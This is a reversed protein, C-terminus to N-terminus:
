LLSFRKKHKRFFIFMQRYVKRFTLEEYQKFFWSALACYLFTQRIQYFSFLGHIKIKEDIQHRFIRFIISSAKCNRQKYVFRAKCKTYGFDIRDTYVKYASASTVSSILFTNMAATTPTLTGYMLSCKRKM